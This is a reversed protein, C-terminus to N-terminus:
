LFMAARAAYALGQDCRPGDSISWCRNGICRLGLRGPPSCRPKSAGLQACQEAVNGVVLELGAVFRHCITSGPRGCGLDARSRSRRGNTKEQAKSCRYRGGSGTNRAVERYISSRHRGTFAAIEGVTMRSQRCRAITYREGSTIQNYM